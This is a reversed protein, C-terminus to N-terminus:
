LIFFMIKINKKIIYAKKYIYWFNVLSKTACVKLWEDYTLVGQQFRFSRNVFIMIKYNIPKNPNEMNILISFFYCCVDIIPGTEESGVIM